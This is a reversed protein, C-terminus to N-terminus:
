ELGDPLPKVYLKISRVKAATNLYLGFRNHKPGTVSMKEKYDLVKVGDVYLRLRGQDNEAVIHHVKDQTILKKPERDALISVGEKRIQNLTNNMGGFQFFYGTTLPNKAKRGKAPPSAHIFPSIDCVMVKPKPKNPFFIIPQVDTVAELEIRQFGVADGPPFGRASVLTGSGRLWGDEIEWKGEFVIWDPGLEKRKFDDRFALKWGADEARILGSAANDDKAEGSPAPLSVCLALVCAPFAAALRTGFM